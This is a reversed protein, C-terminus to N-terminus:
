ICEYGEHFYFIIHPSVQPSPLHAGNIVVCVKYDMIQQDSRWTLLVAKVTASNSSFITVHTEMGNEFVVLGGTSSLKIDAQYM